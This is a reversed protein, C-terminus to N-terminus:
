NEQTASPIPTKAPDSNKRFSRQEAHYPVSPRLDLADSRPATKVGCAGWSLCLFTLLVARGLNSQIVHLLRDKRHLTVLKEQSMSQGIGKDKAIKSLIQMAAENLEAHIHTLEADLLQDPSIKHLRCYQELARIAEEAETLDISRSLLSSLLQRRENAPWLWEQQNRIRSSRLMDQLIPRVQSFMERLNLLGVLLRQRRDEMQPLPAPGYVKTSQLRGLEGRSDELLIQLAQDQPKADCNFRLQDLLTQFLEFLGTLETYILRISGQLHLYPLSEAEGLKFGLHAALSRDLNELRPDLALIPHLVRLARSLTQLQEAIGGLQSAFDVLFISFLSRQECVGDEIIYMPQNFMLEAKRVLDESINWLEHALDEGARSITWRFLLTDLGPAGYRAQLLTIIGSHEHALQTLLATGEQGRKRQYVKIADRFQEADRESALGVECLAATAASLFPLHYTTDLRQPSLWESIHM